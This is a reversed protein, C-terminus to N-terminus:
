TENNKEWCELCEYNLYLNGKEQRVCKIGGLDKECDICRPAEERWPVFQDARKPVCIRERSKNEGRKLIYGPHLDQLNKPKM